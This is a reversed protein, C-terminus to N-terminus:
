TSAILFLVYKFFPINIACFILISMFFLTTVTPKSLLMHTSRFFFGFVIDASSHSLFSYLFINKLHGFTRVHDYSFSM